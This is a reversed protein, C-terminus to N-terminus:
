NTSSEEQFITALNQFKTQILKLKKKKPEVLHM